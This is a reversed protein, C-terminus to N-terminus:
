GRELPSKVDEGPLREAPVSFAVAGRCIEAFTLFGAQELLLLPMGIKLHDYGNPDVAPTEFLLWAYARHIEQWYNQSILHGFSLVALGGVMFLNAHLTRRCLVSMLLGFGSCM